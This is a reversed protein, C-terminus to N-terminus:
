IGLKRNIQSLRATLEAFVEMRAANQEADILIALREFIIRDRELILDRQENTVM